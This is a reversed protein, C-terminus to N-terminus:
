VYPDVLTATNGAIANLYDKVWTYIISGDAWFADWEVQTLTKVYGVDFDDFGGKVFASGRIQYDSVSEYVCLDFTMKRVFTGDYDGNADYNLSVIPIHSAIIVINNAPVVAKGDTTFAKTNQVSVSNSM